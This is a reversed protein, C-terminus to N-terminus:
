HLWLRDIKQMQLLIHRGWALLDGSCRPTSDWSPSTAWVQGNLAKSPRSWTLLSPNAVWWSRAEGHTLRWVGRTELYTWVTLLFEQYLSHQHMRLFWSYRFYTFYGCRETLFPFRETPQHLRSTARSYNAAVRRQLHDFSAQPWIQKKGNWQTESHGQAKAAQSAALIADLVLAAWAHASDRGSHSLYAMSMRDFIDSWSLSRALLVGIASTSSYTRTTSPTLGILELFFGFLLLFVVSSTYTMCDVDNAVNNSQNCSYGSRSWEIYRM